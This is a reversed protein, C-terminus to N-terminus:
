KIILKDTTEGIRVYYVGAPLTSVDITEKDTSVIKKMIVKGSNDIINIPMSLTGESVSITISSSAPNPYISFIQSAEVGEIGVSQTLFLCVISDCGDTTQLTDYYVGATSVNFGYDSYTEGM